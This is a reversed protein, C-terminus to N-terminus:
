TVFTVKKRRTTSLRKVPKPSIIPTRTSGRPFRVQSDFAVTKDDKLANEKFSPDRVGGYKETRIISAFPTAP